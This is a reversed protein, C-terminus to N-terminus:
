SQAVPNARVENSPNQPGREVVVVLKNGIRGVLRDALRYLWMTLPFLLPRSLWAAIAGPEHRYYMAYRQVRLPRFGRAVLRRTVDRPDLRVVRNGAPERQLSIGARIALRTIAAEAPETISVSRRSIRSMEDIAAFPDVLHHLGDHVYVLDMSRDRFPLHEVDAVISEMAVGHRRARERARQAAGLSIDSSVVAAGAEALFEADMGSGGCVVLATWGDLRAGLPRTARRFKDTLLYGYLAGAGRPREIEFEAAARDFFAAQAANHVDGPAAQRPDTAREHHHIEDHDLAGPRLFVPIGSEIRYTLSCRTCELAMRGDALHGHCFPCAFLDRFAPFPSKVGSDYSPIHPTPQARNRSAGIVPGVSAVNTPTATRPCYRLRRDPDTRVTAVARKRVSDQGRRSVREFRDKASRGRGGPAM